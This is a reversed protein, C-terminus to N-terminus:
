YKFWGQVSLSTLFFCKLLHTEGRICGFLRWLGSEAWQDLQQLTRLRAPGVAEQSALEDVFSLGKFIALSSTTALLGEAPAWFAETTKM